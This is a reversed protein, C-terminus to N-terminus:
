MMEMKFNCELRYFDSDKQVGEDRIGGPFAKFPIM